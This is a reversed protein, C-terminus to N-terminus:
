DIEEGQLEIPRAALKKQLNHLVVPLAEEPSRSAYAVTFMQNPKDIKMKIEAGYVCRVLVFM